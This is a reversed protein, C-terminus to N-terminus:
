PSGFETHAAALVDGVPSIELVVAHLRQGHGPNIILTRGVREAWRGLQQPAEHIHGCLLVPPTIRRMAAALARSGVQAGSAVTDLTGHPPTHVVWLSSGAPGSWGALDEEISPLSAFHNATAPHTTGDPDSTYAEAPPIIRDGVLDRREFDKRRFPTPPVFPYGLLSPGGPLPVPAPGLFRVCGELEALGVPWDTNGPVAYVPRGVDRLLDRLPSRAFAIQEEAVHTHALLDGGLILATPHVTRALEALAAYHARDGHLDAAYLLRM